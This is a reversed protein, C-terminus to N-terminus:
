PSELQLLRVKFEECKDTVPLDWLLALTLALCKSEKSCTSCQITKPQLAELKRSVELVRSSQSM